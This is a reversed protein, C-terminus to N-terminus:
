DFNLINTPPPPPQISELPSIYYEYCKKNHIFREHTRITYNYPRLLQRLVTIIRPMTMDRHLYTRAKCPFYYTEIELLLRSFPERAFTFETFPHSDQFGNFQLSTLWELVQDRSPTERFINDGM